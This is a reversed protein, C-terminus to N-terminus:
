AADNVIKEYPHFDIGLRPIQECSHRYQGEMGVEVSSIGQLMLVKMAMASHHESCNEIGKGLLACIWEAMEVDNETIKNDVKNILQLIGVIRAKPQRRQPAFIGKAELKEILEEPKFYTPM